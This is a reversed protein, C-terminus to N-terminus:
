ELAPRILKARIQYSEASPHLKDAVYLDPRPLGDSGVMHLDHTCAARLDANDLQFMVVTTQGEDELIMRVMFDFPGAGEQDAAKQM